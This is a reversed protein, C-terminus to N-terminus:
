PLVFVGDDNLEILRLNLAACAIRDMDDGWDSGDITTLVRLVYEGFLRKHTDTINNTDMNDHLKNIGIQKQELYPLILCM